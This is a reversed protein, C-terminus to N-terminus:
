DGDEAVADQISSDMPNCEASWTVTIMRDLFDIAIARMPAVPSKIYSSRIDRLLFEPDVIEEVALWVEEYSHHSLEVQHVNVTSGSLANPLPVDLVDFDYDSVIILVSIANKDPVLSAPM